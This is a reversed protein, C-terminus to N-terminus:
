TTIQIDKLVHVFAFVNPHPANVINWLTSHFAECGNTTRESSLYSSAWLSPSFNSEPEMYNAVLRYLRDEIWTKRIKRKEPPTWELLTKLWRDNSM